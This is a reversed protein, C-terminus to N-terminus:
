QYTFDFCSWGEENCRKFEFVLNCDNKRNHLDECPPPSHIPNMKFKFGHGLANKGELEYYVLQIKLPAEAINRTAVFYVLSLLVTLFVELGM